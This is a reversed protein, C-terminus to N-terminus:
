HRSSWPRRYFRDRPRRFLFSFLDGASSRGPAKLALDEFRDCLLVLRQRAYLGRLRLRSQMGPMGIVGSAAVPCVSAAAAVPVTSKPVHGFYFCPGTSASAPPSWEHNALRVVLSRTRNAVTRGSIM